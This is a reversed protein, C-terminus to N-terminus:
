RVLAVARRRHAGQRRHRLRIPQLLDRFPRSSRAVAPKIASVASTMPIRPHRGPRWGCRRPRGRQTRYPLLRVQRNRRGISGAWEQATPKGTMDHAGTLSAVLDQHCNACVSDPRDVLFHMNGVEHPNHCSLCALSKQDTNKDRTFLTLKNNAPVANPRSLGTIASRCGRPKRPASTRATVHRVCVRVSGHTAPRSSPRISPLQPVGRVPRKGVATARPPKARHRCQNRLDHVTGFMGGREPHCQICLKSDTLTDALIYRGSRGHHVKHCSLCILTDGAGTQTGM